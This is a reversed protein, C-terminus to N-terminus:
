WNFVGDKITITMSISSDLSRGDATKAPKWRPMNKKLYSILNNEDTQTINGTKSLIEYHCVLGHCNIIFSLDITGNSKENTIKEIPFYANLKGSKGIITAVEGGNSITLDETNCSCTDKDSKQSYCNYSLQFLVIIILYKKM